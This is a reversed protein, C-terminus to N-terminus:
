NFYKDTAICVAQSNPPFYGEEGGGVSISLSDRAYFCEYMDDFYHNPGMANVAIPEAGSLIVYVLVWKM